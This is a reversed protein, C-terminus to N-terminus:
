AIKLDIGSLNPPTTAIILAIIIKSKKGKILVDSILLLLNRGRKPIAKQNKNTSKKNNPQIPWFGTSDGNTSIPNPAVM